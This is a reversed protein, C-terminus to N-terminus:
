GKVRIGVWPLALGLGLGLGLGSGLGILLALGVDGDYTALYVASPTLPRTLPTLLATKNPTNASRASTCAQICM